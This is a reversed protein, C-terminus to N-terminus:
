VEMGLDEPSWLPVRRGDDWGIYHQNDATCIATVAVPTEDPDPDSKAISQDWWPILVQHGRQRCFAANRALHAAVQRNGLGGADLLLLVVAGPNHQLYRNLQHPAGTAAAHGGGGIVPCGWRSAAIRPKMGRGESIAILDSGICSDLQRGMRIPPFIGLPNENDYEPIGLECADPKSLWRYRGGNGPDDLRLEVGLIRQQEDTISLAIADKHFRLVNSGTCGPYAGSHLFVPGPGVSVAGLLHANSNDVSFGYRRTLQQRHDASLEFSRFLSSYAEHRQQINATIPEFYGPKLELSPRQTVPTIAKRLAAAGLDSQIDDLYTERWDRKRPLDYRRASYVGWLGPDQGKSPGHFFWHDGDASGDSYTMCLHLDGNSRCDGATDGCIECGNHRGTPKLGVRSM